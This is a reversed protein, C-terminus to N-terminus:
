SLEDLNAGDSLPPKVADVLVEDKGAQARGAILKMLEAHCLVCVHSVTAFDIMPADIMVTVLSPAAVYSIMESGCWECKVRFDVSM